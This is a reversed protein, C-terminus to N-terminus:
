DACLESLISGVKAVFIAAAEDDALSHMGKPVVLAEAGNEPGGAARVLRQSLEHVNVSDPVYEDWESHAFLTRLGRHSPVPHTALKGAAARIGATGMHGLREHLEDDTFYSSFMDDAGGRGHLSVYRSASIPVFGYMKEPMLAEGDGSAVLAEAKALTAAQEAADGSMSNAETDSCPAQLIAARVRARLESPATALLHVADQCGTSHGIIALSSAGRSDVLFQLLETLESADRELSGCGYGAYASSIIPQVMAWGRKDCEEALREVYPTALLGDTLGGVFVAFRSYAHRAPSEFAQLGSPSTRYRYLRGELGLTALAALTAM